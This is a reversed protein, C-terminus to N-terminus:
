LHAGYIPFKVIFAGVLCLTLLAGCDRDLVGRYNISVTGGTLSLILVALLLPLSATLTYFLIYLSATLREPQYGWGMILLFIPLLVAEFFYYFELLRKVTFRLVLLGLILKILFLFIREYQAFINAMIIYVTLWGRLMILMIGLSMVGSRQFPMLDGIFELGSIAALLM